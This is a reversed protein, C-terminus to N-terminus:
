RAAMTQLERLLNNIISDAQEPTFVWDTASPEM